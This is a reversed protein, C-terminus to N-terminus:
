AHANRKSITTRGGREEGGSGVLKCCRLGSPGSVVSISIYPCSRGRGGVV